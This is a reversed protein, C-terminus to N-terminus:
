LKTQKQKVQSETQYSLYQGLEGEKEFTIGRQTWPLKIAIKQGM